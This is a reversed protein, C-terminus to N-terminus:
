LDLFEQALREREVQPIYRTRLMEKFLDWTVATRWDDSYLGIM